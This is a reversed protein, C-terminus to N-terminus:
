HVGHDALRVLDTVSLNTYGAAHLKQIYRLTVGHDVLDRAQDPTVHYGMQALGRLFAPTVGHDSLGIAEELTLNTFGYAQFEAIARPRVGHDVARVLQEVTLAHLGVAALDRVYQMTVGHEFVRSLLDVSPVPYAQSKFYDLMGLADANEFLWEMQREPSVTGVGRSALQNTFGPDLTFTFEGEAKGGGARGTCVITGEQRVVTFRVNTEPGFLQARSLGRFTSELDAAPYDFSDESSNNGEASVARYRTEFGVNGGNTTAITWQMVAHVPAAALLAAITIAAFM